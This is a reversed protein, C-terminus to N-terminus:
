ASAPLFALIENGDRVCKSAKGTKLVIPTAFGQCTWGRVTIPGGGGNGPAQGSRIAKAYDKEVTMAVACSVHGAAVDVNVPVNAASRTTGCPKGAARASAGTRPHSAPPGTSSCGAALVPGAAAALATRALRGRQQGSTRGTPRRPRM